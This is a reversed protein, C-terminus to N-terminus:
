INRYYVNQIKKERGIYTCVFLRLLCVECYSRRLAKISLNQKNLLYDFAIFKSYSTAHIKLFVNLNESM